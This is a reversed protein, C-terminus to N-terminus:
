SDKEHCHVYKLNEVKFSIIEFKDGPDPCLGLERIAEYMFTDFDYLDESALIAHCVTNHKCDMFRIDVRVKVERYTKM